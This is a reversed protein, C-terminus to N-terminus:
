KEYPLEKAITIQKTYGAENKANQVLNSVFNTIVASLAVIALGILAYLLTNKAKQLKQSDGSSTIYGIAGIIIFIVCVVGSIGVAWNIGNFFVTEADYNRFDAFSGNQILAFRISNLIINSLMVIAFGIFARLLVKRSNLAKGSDGSSFMYLYGGYVVFGLVLYIAVTTIGEFINSVIIVINSTLQDQNTPNPIIECDWSKINLFTRCSGLENETANTPLSITTNIVVAISLIVILTAIIKKFNNKM